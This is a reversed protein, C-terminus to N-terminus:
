YIMLLVGTVIQNVFLFLSLSGFTHWFGTEKPLPKHIQSDVFQEVTAVDYRDNLWLRIKPYISM